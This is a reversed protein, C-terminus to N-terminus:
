GFVFVNEDLVVIVHVFSRDCDYLVEDVFVVLVFNVYLTKPCAFRCRSM